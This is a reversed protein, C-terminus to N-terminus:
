PFYLVRLRNFGDSAFGPHHAAGAKIHTLNSQHFNRILLPVMRPGFENVGSSQEDVEVRRSSIVGGSGEIQGTAAWTCLRQLVVVMAARRVADRRAAGARAANRGERAARDYAVTASLEESRM